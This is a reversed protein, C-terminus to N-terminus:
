ADAEKRCVALLDYSREAVREELIGFRAADMALVAM